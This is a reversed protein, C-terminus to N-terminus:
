NPNLNPNPFRFECRRGFWFGLRSGKRVYEGLSVNESLDFDKGLGLVLVWMKM